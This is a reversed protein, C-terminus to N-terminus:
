RANILAETREAFLECLAQRFRDILLKGFRFLVAAAHEGAARQKFLEAKIIHTRNVPMIEVLKHRHELIDAVHLFAGNENMHHRAFAGTIRRRFLRCVFIVANCFEIDNGALM